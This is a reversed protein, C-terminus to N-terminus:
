AKENDNNNNDPPSPPTTRLISFSGVRSFSRARAIFYKTRNWRFLRFQYLFRSSFSSSFFSRCHFLHAGNWKWKLREANRKWKVEKEEDNEQEESREEREQKVKVNPVCVCVLQCAARKVSSKRINGDRRHHLTHKKWKWKINRKKNNNNNSRRYYAVASLERLWGISSACPFM